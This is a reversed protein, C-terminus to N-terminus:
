LSVTRGLRVVDCGSFTGAHFLPLDSGAVSEAFGYVSDAALLVRPLTQCTLSRALCLFFLHM